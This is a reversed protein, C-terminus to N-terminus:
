VGDSDLCDEFRYVGGALKRIAARMMRESYDQLARMNTNVKALGYKATLANLREAGRTLSALQAMLDGEREVPTRV